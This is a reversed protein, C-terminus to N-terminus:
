AVLLGKMQGLVFQEVPTDTVVRYYGIERTRCFQEARELFDRLRQRYTRVAEADLTLDRVEGTEADVLRLDGAFSPNMEDPALVHIVHVDFRRELLAKVGREYGAPDMLDSILVALGAESSRLAYSALGDSLATRGSPRIRGLFDMLPVAQGRGRAPSWGEAMGERLVGVGVRELNVLGVYGLAM